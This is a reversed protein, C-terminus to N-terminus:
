IRSIKMIRSSTHWPRTTRSARYWISRAYRRNLHANVLQFQSRVAAARPGLGASRQIRAREAAVIPKMDDCHFFTADEGHTAQGLRAEGSTGQEQYDTM